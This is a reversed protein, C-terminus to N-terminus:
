RDLLTIVALKAFQATEVNFKLSNESPAIPNVQANFKCYLGEM